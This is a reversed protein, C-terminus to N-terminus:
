VSLANQFYHSMVTRGFTSLIVEMRSTIERSLASRKLKAIDTIEDINFPPSSQMGLGVKAERRENIACLSGDGTGTDAGVVVQISSVM